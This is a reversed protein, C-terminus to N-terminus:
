TERRCSKPSSFSAIATNFYLIDYKRHKVQLDPALSAHININVNSAADSEVAQRRGAQPATM